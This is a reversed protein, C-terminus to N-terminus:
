ALVGLSRRTRRRPAVAWGTGTNTVRGADELQRWAAAFQRRSLGSERQADRTRAITSCPELSRELQARRGAM